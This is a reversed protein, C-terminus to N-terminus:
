CVASIFILAVTCSPQKLFVRTWMDAAFLQLIMELKKFILKDLWM